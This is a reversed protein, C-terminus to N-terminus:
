DAFGHAPTLKKARREYGHDKSIMARWPGLEQTPFRGFDFQANAPHQASELEMDM